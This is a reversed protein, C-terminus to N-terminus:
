FGAPLLREWDPEKDAVIKVKKRRRAQGAVLAVQRRSLGLQKVIFDILAKNAKNDVPPASLRLKLCGDLLGAVGNERAGPQVWVRLLWGQDADRALWASGCKASNFPPQM